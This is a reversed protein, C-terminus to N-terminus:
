VRGFIVDDLEAYDPLEDVIRRGANIVVRDSQPRCMLENLNRAQFIILNAPTGVAISGAPELGTIKAAIPAVFAPADGFPEDLQFVRVAQQFTDLVDHDGYPYFADRCNDGGIAVHIGANHLERLLTVGRWRPTRRAGRDQLYMMSAPMATFSIRAETCLAITDRVVQEPQLALNVCHDCVVKGAFGRGVATRAIRPLSFAATSQAQDTHLDIDLGREAALRFLADLGADTEAAVAPDSHDVDNTAGGLIGGSEAVVDALRIAHDTRYFRLPLLAVAQLAVRGAWESRLARFVDWSRFAVAAHSDIHTRIAGVGHVYACRLGFSMRKYIDEATWNANDQLTQARAGDLTGDAVARPYVQGKDLHAHAEVLTPWVQRGQLDLNEAGERSSGVASEITLFKGDRILIDLLPAGDIDRPGAIAAHLMCTPVRANRLWFHGNSPIRVNKLKFM